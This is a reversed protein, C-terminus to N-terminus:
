LSPTNNIINIVDEKYVFQGLRDELYYPVLNKVDAEIKSKLESVLKQSHLSILYEVTTKFWNYFTKRDIGKYKFNVPLLAFFEESKYMFEKEWEESETQPPLDEIIAMQEKYDQICEMEDRDLPISQLEFPKGCEQCVPLTEDISYVKKAGCCKSVEVSPKHCPCNSKWCGKYDFRTEETNGTIKCKECCKSKENSNQM